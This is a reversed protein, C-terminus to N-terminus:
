WPINRICTWDHRPETSSGFCAAELTWVQSREERWGPTSTRTDSEPIMEHAGFTDAQNYIKCLSCFHHEKSPRLFLHSSCSPLSKEVTPQLNNWCWLPLTMARTWESPPHMRWITRSRHVDAMNATNSIRPDTSKNRGYIWWNQHTVMWGERYQPCLANFSVVLSESAVSSCM